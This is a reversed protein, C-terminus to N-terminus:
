PSVRPMSSKRNRCKFRSHIYFVSECKFRGLGSLESLACTVNCDERWSYKARKGSVMASTGAERMSLRASYATPERIMTTRQNSLSLVSPRRPQRQSSQNVMETKMHCVARNAMTSYRATTPAGRPKVCSIRSARVGCILTESSFPALPMYAENKMRIAKTQLAFATRMAKKRCSVHTNGIRRM